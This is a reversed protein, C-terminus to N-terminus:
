LYLSPVEDDGRHYPGARKHANNYKREPIPTNVDLMRINSESGDIAPNTPNTPNSSDECVAQSETVSGGGHTSLVHGRCSEVIASMEQNVGRVLVQYQALATAFRHRLSDKRALKFGRCKLFNELTAAWAWENLAQQVFLKAVFELM